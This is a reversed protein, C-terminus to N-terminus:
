DILQMKKRDIMEDVRNIYEDLNKVNPVRELRNEKPYVIKSIGGAGLAIISQKEEMIQINYICEHGNKCYGINELNGLMYKQRYMYYPYMQMKGSYNRTLNLMYNALKERSLNYDEINERLRSSRKVALTHVTLNEPNMRQIHELTNTLELLGEDPLGIIIDMNVTRFGIERALTYAKKIDETSHSRGILKLTKDNMTQPNISIRDINNKKLTLLKERTITDPRGAEVTFEKLETIDFNELINLILKSLQNASLTTPTGGGIYISEVKKGLDNLLKATGKIEKFLSKLYEEVKNKNKDIPNSPFSCYICRTPCFPISIYISVLDERIPYVYKRECIAVDTILKIKEDNLRYKQKLINKIEILSVNKDLLEHVIKTPRIGTLIGWPTSSKSYIKSLVDYISLKINRKLEKRRDIQKDEKKFKYERKNSDILNNNKFIQTKIIFVDNSEVVENILLLSDETKNLYNECESIFNIKLIGFTKILEGIEYKYDHGKLVVSIM